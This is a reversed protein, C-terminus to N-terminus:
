QAIEADKRPLIDHRIRGERFHVEDTAPVHQDIEARRHLLAHDRNEVVRQVRVAKQQEARRLGHAAERVEELQRFRLVADVRLSGRGCPRDGPQRREDRPCPAAFDWPLRGHLAVALGDEAFYAPLGIRDHQALKRGVPDDHIRAHVDQLEAPARSREELVPRTGRIQVEQM